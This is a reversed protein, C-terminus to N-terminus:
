LFLCKLIDPLSGILGLGVYIYILIFIPSNLLYGIRLAFWSLSPKELFIVFSMNSACCLMAHVNCTLQIYELYTILIRKALLPSPPLACKIFLVLVIKSTTTKM